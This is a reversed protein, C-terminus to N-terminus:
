IEVVLFLMIICFLLRKIRLVYPNCRNLITFFSLIGANIRKNAKKETDKCPNKRLSTDKRM